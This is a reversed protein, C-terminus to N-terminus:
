HLPIIKHQLLVDDIKNNKIIIQYGTKRIGNRNPQHPNLHHQETSTVLDILVLPSQRRTEM